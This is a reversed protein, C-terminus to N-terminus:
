KLEQAKLAKQAWEQCQASVTEPSIIRMQDPFQFFWGWFTGSIQVKVTTTYRNNGSRKIKTDLGFQDYIVDILDETFELEVKEETGGYMKFTKSTYTELEKASVLAEDGILSDLHQVDEIRDIRYNRYEKRNSNYCRLYYKDDTYILAIPDVVYREKGRQYVRDGNEDHKFYFFSVQTQRKFSEEIIAITDLVSNNTQKRINFRIRNQKLLEACHTGGINAIKEILANTTEEPIVSSAQVADILIKLEALSFENHELYFANSHGIKTSRVSYGMDQLQSIDRALTRRDCSIGLGALKEILTNTTIPHEADSQQKLIETLLLLKNKQM